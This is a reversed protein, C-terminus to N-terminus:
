CHAPLLSVHEDDLLVHQMSHALTVTLIIVLETLQSLAQNDPLGYCM